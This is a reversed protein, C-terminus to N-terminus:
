DDKGTNNLFELKQYISDEPRNCSTFAAYEEILSKGLHVGGKKIEEAGVKDDLHRALAPGVVHLYALFALDPVYANLSAGGNTFGTLLYILESLNKNTEKQANLLEQLLAYQNMPEDGSKKTM